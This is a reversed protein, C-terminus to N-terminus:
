SICTNYITDISINLRKFENLFSSKYIGQAYFAAQVMRIDYRQSECRINFDYWISPPAKTFKSQKRGIYNKYDIYIATPKCWKAYNYNGVLDFIIDMKELTASCPVKAKAKLRSIEYIESIIEKYVIPENLFFTLDTVDDLIGVAVDLSEDVRGAIIGVNVYLKEKPILKYRYIYKLLYAALYHRIKEGDIQQITDFPNEKTDMVVYEINFDQMQYELKLWEKETVESFPKPVYVNYGIAGLFTIEEFRVKSLLINDEDFYIRGFCSM